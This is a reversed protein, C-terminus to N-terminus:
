RDSDLDDMRGDTSMEADLHTHDSVMLKYCKQSHEAGCRHASKRRRLKWFTNQSWRWDKVSKVQSHAGRWLPTCKTSTEVDLLPGLGDTNLTESKCISQARHWLLTCKKLIEVELLAELIPKKHMKVELWLPTLEGDLLAGSSFRKQNWFTSGVVTGHVKDVDWSGFTARLQPRKLM